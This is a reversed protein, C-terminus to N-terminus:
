FCEAAGNKIEFVKAGDQLTEKGYVAVCAGPEMDGVVEIMGRSELGTTVRIKKAIGNEVLFISSGADDEIISERPVGIASLREELVVKARAFMGPKYKKESNDIRVTIELTRAVPHVTDAIEDIKGVVPETEGEIDLRVDLGPKLQVLHSSAVDAKFELVDVNEIRFVPTGLNITEGIHKMRRTVIGDIPASIKTDRLQLEAIEVGIDARKEQLEAIQLQERAQILEADAVDLALMMKDLQQKPIAKSEFLRKGRAAERAADAHTTKAKNMNANAQIRQGKAQLLAKEADKRNLAYQRGDLEALVEGAKVRAGEDVHLKEITGSFGFSVESTEISELTGRTLLEKSFDM